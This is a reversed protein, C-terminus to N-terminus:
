ADMGGLLWCGFVPGASFGTEPEIRVRLTKGQTAAAPVPYDVDVFRFGRDGNLTEDAVTHGNALIRFRRRHEGGWYRLRLRLPGPQNRLDFEVFGGSRADRGKRRRYEVGYSSESRLGHAQESAEDGLAIRDIADADLRAMAEAEAAQRAQKERWGQPDLREFYVASRRDHQAHFPAFAMPGPQVVGTALYRAPAQQQAFGALVDGEAVLVPDTKATYPSEASGLDAAMVLPGRLVSVVAPDDSAELRLSMPLELTLTDGAQWRRQLRAYGDALEARVPSGNLTLQWSPAWGPIRLAIRQAAEPAVTVRLRAQGGVPLDSDLELRLGSAEDHMRSPIYLNVFLTGDEADCWYISDGFQAHSEMGSGVCCWFADFPTSYERKAGAMLPMMYAFMGSDPHQQAMVHNLLTREYYDFYAAQPTWRYLHRTLKLMNYSNCHECTQDTVFQSITDPPQFYERDSNGGIVYSHHETVARWFFRAAAAPEPDGSLEFQRAMGILKPIQTNAHLRDLRDQQAVLPDLVVRHRLREATRLWRGDGTRDSLEAFSENLGGFECSLMQQMQADDLQAFVADLYGGLGVAVELARANACHAHADLLGAFLKHCTYLPAWSGNLSFPQTDITGRKLDNFIARGSEIKGEPTKRTFGAVYGDGAQAQCQALEAVIYDARSRCEGDGSQAHMLSLASLYHGLTHGAITDAEWGGYVRAKPTLGAYLRFNHLLRDPELQFLYRRNLQLSDLFMSPKLRVNRLPVPQARQPVAAAAELTFGSFGAASAMASWALFRRRSLSLTM